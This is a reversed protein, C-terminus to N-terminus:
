FWIQVEKGNNEIDNVYLTSCYGNNAGYGMGDDELVILKVDDDLDGNNAVFERLDKMTLKDIPWGQFDYAQESKRLKSRLNVLAVDLADREDKELNGNELLGNLINIADKTEM